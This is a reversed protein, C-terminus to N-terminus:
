YTAVSEIKLIERLIVPDTITDEKLNQMEYSKYSIRSKDLLPLEVDNEDNILVIEIYIKNDIDAGKIVNFLSKLKSNYDYNPYIMQVSYYDQRAVTGATTGINIAYQQYSLDFIQSPTDAGDTYIKVKFNTYSM